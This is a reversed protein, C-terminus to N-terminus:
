TRRIRELRQQVLANNPEIELAKQYAALAAERENRAAHVDGMLIWNPTYRPYFEANLVLMRLAEATKGQRTLPRAVDMLRFPRFDYARSGYYATRLQRYRAIASDVGATAVTQLLTSELTQPRPLGGHCTACEVHLSPEDRRSMDALLEGNLRDVMRLMFRAKEKDEDEDDDFRMGELTVTDGGVHCYWCRVGLATAFYRMTAVLSDRSITKPLVKLNTFTDPIQARAPAAAALALCALLLARRLTTRM